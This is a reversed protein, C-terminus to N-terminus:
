FELDLGLNWIQRWIKKSLKKEALTQTFNLLDALAEFIGKQAFSGELFTKSSKSLAELLDEFSQVRREQLCFSGM